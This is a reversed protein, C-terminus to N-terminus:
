KKSAKTKRAKKAKPKKPKSAPASAPAPAPASAPEVPEPKPAPAPDSDSQENMEKAKVTYVTREDDSLAKWIQSVRTFREKATLIDNGDADKVTSSHEKMFVNYGNLKKKPSKKKDLYTTLINTVVDKHLDHEKAIKSILTKNLKVM